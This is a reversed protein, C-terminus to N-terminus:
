KYLYNRREILINHCTKASYKVINENSLLYKFKETISYNSFDQNISEAKIILDHRLHEYLPCCMLVHTEDEVIDDCHFCTRENVPLSQYRGTEIKLPAVGCRFKSLASRHSRPLIDKYVYPETKYTSKFQKYNRLKNGKNTGSVGHNSNICDLWKLAIREFLIDQLTKIINRRDSIRYIEGRTLTM